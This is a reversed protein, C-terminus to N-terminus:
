ENREEKKTKERIFEVIEQIAAGDLGADLTEEVTGVAKAMDKGAMAVLKMLAKSVYMQAIAIELLSAESTRILECTHDLVKAFLGEIKELRFAASM